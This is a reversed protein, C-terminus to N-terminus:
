CAKLKKLDYLKRLNTENTPIEYANHIIRGMISDINDRKPAVLKRSSLWGSIINEVKLAVVVDQPVM